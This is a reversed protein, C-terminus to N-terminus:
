VQKQYRGCLLGGSHVLSKPNSWPSLVMITHGFREISSKFTHSLWEFNWEHTEHQNISFIDFWIIVDEEEAAAQFHWQLAEIVNLFECQHAHSIFVQAMDGYAGHSENKLLECYSSRRELTKPKIYIECVQETTLGKLDEKGGCDRVFEDVVFSLKVGANPFPLTSTSDSM